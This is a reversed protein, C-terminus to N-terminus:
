SDYAPMECCRVTGPCRIHTACVIQPVPVRIVKSATVGAAEDRQGRDAAGRGERAAQGGIEPGASDATM